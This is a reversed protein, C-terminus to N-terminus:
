RRTSMANQKLHNVIFKAAEPNQVWVPHLVDQWEFCDLTGSKDRDLTENSLIYRAFEPSQFVDQLEEYDLVGNGDADALVFVEQVLKRFEAYAPSWDKFPYDPVVEPKAFRPDNENDPPTELLLKIYMPPMGVASCLAGLEQQSMHVLGQFTLGQKALPVAFKTLRLGPKSANALFQFMAGDVTRDLDLFHADFAEDYWPKAAM